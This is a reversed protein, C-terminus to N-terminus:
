RVLMDLRDSIAGRIRVYPVRRVWKRARKISFNRDLELEPLNAFRRGKRVSLYLCDVLAKERSAILFTQRERYWDFGSFFLPHLRHFSYTGLPTKVIRTHATTAAYIVRPIQGIMGYLHLASFFSVYAQHSGALYAVLSFSSFRPDDVNCWLGRAARVLISESELRALAQSAASLSSGRLSAIERTTFVPRGIVHIAKGISIDGRM